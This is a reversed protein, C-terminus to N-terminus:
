RIRDCQLCNIEGGGGGGKRGECVPQLSAALWRLWRGRWYAM